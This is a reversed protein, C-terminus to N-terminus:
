IGLNALADILRRAVGTAVPAKAEARAVAKELRERAADLLGTDGPRSLAQALHAASDALHATEASSFAEPHLAGGLEDVLDALEQKADPDLHRAKRLLRALERLRDRVQDPPPDTPPQEAM